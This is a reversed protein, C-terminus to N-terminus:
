ANGTLRRLAGSLDGSGALSTGVLVADAVGKLSAVQEARSYGSEAVTVGNFGATRALAILRPATKLDIKLSSLDRNNVGLVRAGAALAIKLESDDHVEVLATLGLAHAFRLYDRTREKLVAVILLVASAGGEAAEVVQAPHVTFEKRLLPLTTAAAIETLHALSGGFYREETLVSLAAAGGEQYALAAEVPELDAIKGQSPSARKVEAIVAPLGAADASLAGEFSRRKAVASRAANLMAEQYATAANRYDRARLRSIEGLTGPCAALEAETLPAPVWVSALPSHPASETPM